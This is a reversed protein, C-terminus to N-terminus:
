AFWARAQKADRDAENAKTAPLGHRELFEGGALIAARKIEQAGTLKNMHIVFGYRESLDWNEVTLIGTRSDANVAWAWGPYHDKLVRAVESALKQDAAMTAAQEVSAYPLVEIVAM